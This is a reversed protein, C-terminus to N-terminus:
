QKKKLTVEPAMLQFESNGDVTAVKVASASAAGRKHLLVLNSKETLILLLGQNTYIIISHQKRLCGPKNTRFFYFMKGYLKM